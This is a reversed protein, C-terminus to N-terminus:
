TLELMLTPKAEKFQAILAKLVEQMLVLVYLSTETLAHTVPVLAYRM